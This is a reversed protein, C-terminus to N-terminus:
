MEVFVVEYGVKIHIQLPLFPLILLLVIIFLFKMCNHFQFIKTCIIVCSVKKYYEIYSIEGNTTAFKSMPSAKFDVDDVRYTKNNYDTLVM